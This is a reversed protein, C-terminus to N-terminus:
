TATFQGKVDLNAYFGVALTHATVFVGREPKGQSVELHLSPSGAPRLVVCPRRMEIRTLFNPGRAEDLACEKRRWASLARANTSVGRKTHAASIVRRPAWARMSFKRSIPRVGVTSFCFSCTYGLQGGGIGRRLM